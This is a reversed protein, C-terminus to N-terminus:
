ATLPAVLLQPPQQSEQLLQLIESSRKRLTITTIEAAFAIRLKTIPEGTQESAVYLAAAAISAPRKGALAGADKTRDLIQIAKRETMGSLGARKAIRSVCSSPDPNELVINAEKQLIKSYRRVSKNNFSAAANEIEEMSRPVRLDRCALYVAASAMGSISRGRVGGSAFGKRYIQFATDSVLNGTGLLSTLRRIERVARRFNRTKSDSSVLMSDLRRLRDLDFNGSIRKGDADADGTSASGRSSMSAPSAGGLVSGLEMSPTAHGVFQPVGEIEGNVIGCGSCLREGTDFDAILEADCERCHDANEKQLAENALM